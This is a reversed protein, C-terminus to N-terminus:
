HSEAPYPGLLWRIVTRRMGRRAKRAREKRPIKRPAVVRAPPGSWGVVSDFAPQTFDGLFGTRPPSRPVQKSTETRLSPSLYRMHNEQRGLFLMARTSLRSPMAQDSGTMTRPGLSLVSQSFSM